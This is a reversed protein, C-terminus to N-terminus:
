RSVSRVAVSTRRAAADVCYRRPQDSGARDTTSSAADVPHSVAIFDGYSSKPDADRARLYASTVPSIRDVAYTTRITEDLPGALAAGAPSVHKFSTAAPVEFASSAERVLQWANLADLINIYSPSGHLVTFPSAGSITAPQHPNMGYRLHM